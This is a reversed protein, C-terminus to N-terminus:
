NANIISYLKSSVPTSINYKRGLDMITGGFIDGENKSKVQVDKHYSTTTEHPFSTAKELSEEIINKRIEVGEFEALSVIEKMVERVQEKLQPDGMIQGLTKNYATTVLGFAAIFIYKEWIAPFSDGKWEYGIDLYDFLDFITNPIFHPFKPDKGMMIIGDGGIQTVIGPKEISTGVYVCSPLVIGKSIEGRIKQYIDVGNLLPIIITNNNMNKSIKTIAEDLDYSKVCLFILDPASIEEYSESAKTPNCIMGNEQSTNLILGNNQIERLHNGRAIFYIRIDNDGIKELKHAIKGGFFGGIGGTGFICIKKIGNEQKEM